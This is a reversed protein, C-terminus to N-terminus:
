AASARALARESFGPFSLRFGVDVLGAHWWSTSRTLASPAGPATRTPRPTAPTGPPGKRAGGVPNATVGVLHVVHHRGAHFTLCDQLVSIVERAADACHAQEGTCDDRGAAEPLSRV